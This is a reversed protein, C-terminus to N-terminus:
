ISKKQSPREQERIYQKVVELSVGGTTAVFYSSSWLSPMRSKLMPYKARLDHSSKGKIAKLLKYVGCRPPCSVLLHVHDTQIELSQILASQEHCVAKIITELDLAIAGELIPLRWKPTWVVHYHCAFVAHRSTRYEVSKKTNDQM